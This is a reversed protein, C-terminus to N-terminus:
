ICRISALRRNMGARETVIPIVNGEATARRIAQERLLSGAPRAGARGTEFELNRAHELMQKGLHKIRKGLDKESMAEVEAAAEQAAQLEDKGDQRLRRRRDHRAGAQHHQAAHHRRALNHAVQKARRRDTEDIARQM